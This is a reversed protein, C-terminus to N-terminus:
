GSNSSQRDYDVALRELMEELKGSQQGIAFMQIVMPPFAGTSGVAEALDTGAAVAQECKVLADRLVTNATSERAIQVAKLFVIGNRMLTAMVIAMRAIAQKRVAPGVIPIRLKLRDWGRRGAETSFLYGIAAIFVAIVLLGVWWGSLIADSAAKVIRTVLPIPKGAEIM